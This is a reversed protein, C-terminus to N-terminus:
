PERVTVLAAARAAAAVHEVEEDTLEPYLPLSVVTNALRASETLPVPRKCLEAYPPHGQIPQPYHILTAVGRADLEARFRDRDPATVVFLHYVHTRGDLERLPRVATDELSERYRAAIERRRVNDAELHQLRVRLLAAQLEDLRSNVGETSHRYRAEQGYQRVLRVRQDLGPDNTIVAGADGLAGLNKTPYFSLAGLAGMTGAVREGLRAGIAQACDEVVIADARDATELV